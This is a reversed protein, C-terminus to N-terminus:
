MYSGVIIKIESLKHFNSSFNTEYEAKTPYLEPVPVHLEGAIELPENTGLIFSLSTLSASDM